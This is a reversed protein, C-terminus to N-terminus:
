SMCLKQRKVGRKLCLKQRKVGRKLCLKRRKVGRKLCLKQRKVGRKLCLKQRKVGWFVTCPLNFFFEQQQLFLAKRERIQRSRRLYIDKSALATYVVDNM